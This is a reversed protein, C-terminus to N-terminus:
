AGLFQHDVFIKLGLGILVLGGVLEAWKGIRRGALSGVWTGAACLCATACGIVLCALLVPLELTPLTVGAALADVSTAGAAAVLAWGALAERPLSGEACTAARLMRLGLFGLILLALWHDVSRVFPLFAAGIAWGILPMLAQATGFAVGLKLAHAAGSRGAAGQCVAVAVADMALGLALAALSVTVLM